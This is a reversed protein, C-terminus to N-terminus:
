ILRFSDLPRTLFNVRSSHAQRTIEHLLPDISVGLSRVYPGQMWTAIASSLAVSQRGSFVRMFRLQSGPGYCSKSMVLSEDEPYM